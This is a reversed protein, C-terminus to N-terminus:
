PGPHREELVQRIAELVEPLNNRIDSNWFRLVKYGRSELWASREADASRAEPTNHQGGDLEIVVRCTHCAFDAIYPGIPVQRRVPFGEKRWHRIHLWLWQETDTANNRLQRARDRSM